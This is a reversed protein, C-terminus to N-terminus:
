DAMRICKVPPKQSETFKIPLYYRVLQWQMKLAWHGCTQQNVAVIQLTVKSQTPISFNTTYAIMQTHESIMVYAKDDCTEVFSPEIHCTLLGIM